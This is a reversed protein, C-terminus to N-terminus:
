IHSSKPCTVESRQSPGDWQDGHKGLALRKRVELRPRMKLAPPSCLLLPRLRSPSLVCLRDYLKDSRLISSVQAGFRQYQRVQVADAITFILHFIILINNKQASKEVFPLRPLASSLCVKELWPTNIGFLFYCCCSWLYSLFKSDSRDVTLTVTYVVQDQDENVNSYIVTHFM